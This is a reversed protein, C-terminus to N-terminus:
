FLLYLSSKKSEMNLNKLDDKILFHAIDEQVSFNIFGLDTTAEEWKTRQADDGSLFGQLLWLREQKLDDAPGGWRVEWTLSM